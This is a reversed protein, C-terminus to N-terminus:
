AARQQQQLPKPKPQEQKIKANAEQTVKQWALEEPQFKLLWDALAQQLDHRLPNAMQPMKFQQFFTPMYIINDFLKEFEDTAQFVQTELM